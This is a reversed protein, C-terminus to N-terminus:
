KLLAWAGLAARRRLLVGGAALAASAVVASRLARPGQWRGHGHRMAASGTHLSRSHGPQKAYLAPRRHKRMPMNARTAALGAHDVRFATVGCASSGM